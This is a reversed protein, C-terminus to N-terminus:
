SLSIGNDSFTKIYEEKIKKLFGEISLHSYKFLIEASIDMDVPVPHRFDINSINSIKANFQDIAKFMNPLKKYADYNIADQQNSCDFTLTVVKKM